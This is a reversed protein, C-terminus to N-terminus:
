AATGEGAACLRPCAHPLKQATARHRRLPHLPNHSRPQLNTSRGNNTRSTHQPSFPRKGMSVSLFNTNSSEFIKLCLFFSLVRSVFITLYMSRSLLKSVSNQPLGIFIFADTKSGFFKSLIGVFSMISDKNM